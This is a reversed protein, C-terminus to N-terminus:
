EYCSDEPSIIFGCADYAVEKLQTLAERGGLSDVIHTQCFCSGHQSTDMARLADCCTLIHQLSESSMWGMGMLGSSSWTPACERATKLALQACQSFYEVRSNEQIPDAAAANTLDEKNHTLMPVPPSVSFATAKGGTIAAAAKQEDISEYVMFASRAIWGDLIKRGEEERDPKGNGQSFTFAWDLLFPFNIPAVRSETCDEHAGLGIEALHCQHITDRFPEFPDFQKHFVGEHKISPTVSGNWNTTEEWTQRMECSCATAEYAALNACCALLDPGASCGEVVFGEMLKCVSQRLQEFQDLTAAYDGMLVESSSVGAFMMQICLTYVSVFALRSIWWM